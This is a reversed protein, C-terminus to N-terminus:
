LSLALEFGGGLAYGDVAAVTPVPLDLVAGFAERFVPRQEALQADDFANREKLDAGVCFAQPSSSTIVVVSLSEDAALEACAASIALAQATSIANLAEPRDLVLEAVREAVREIRVSM